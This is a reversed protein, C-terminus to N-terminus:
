RESYALGKYAAKLADFSDTTDLEGLLAARNTPAGALESSFKSVVQNSQDETIAQPNIGSAKMFYGVQVIAFLAMLQKDTGKEITRIFLSKGLGGSALKTPVYDEVELKMLESMMERVDDPIIHRSKKRRKKIKKKVFYAGIAAAGLTVVGAVIFGKKLLGSM